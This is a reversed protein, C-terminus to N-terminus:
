ASRRSRCTRIFGNTRSTSGYAGTAKRAGARHAPRPSRTPRIATCINAPRSAARRNGPRQVLKRAFYDLFEPGEYWWHGFLEADYPAVVMPPRDLMGALESSKRSANTSSISRTGAAAAQLAHDRQYIKRRGRRRHHPLIEHRYVRPKRRLCIRSSTISIWTLVSTATSIAIVRTAPIVKTSAGSRARPITTAGSPPSATPRSLDARLTGYRPRPQAHLLGHTDLIFWRINAEQLFKEVGEVYACEPLWIGRPDRGFCTRYHDRATLIQARVSPLHGAM